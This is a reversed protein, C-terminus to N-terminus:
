GIIKQVIRELEGTSKFEISIRGKNKGMKISVPSVLYDSLRDSIDPIKSFQLTEKRVSSAYSKNKREVFKEAERVSLGKEAIKKAAKIQEEMTDIGLLARAHGESIYSDDLLKQIELPLSLLRLSNTIAARSKGIRKSLEQHTINLEELLQKYCYAQEMPGLNDRQINEILAMELASTDDVNDVVIAPITGLGTKSIARYRREGAIIEYRDENDIKRVIIPQLLGFEKISEALEDLTDDKFNSRPQNRNPVIVDLKLEIVRERDKGGEAERDRDIGPILADLGRGLGRRVM